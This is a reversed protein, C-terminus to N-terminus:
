SGESSNQQSTRKGHETDSTSEISSILLGELKDALQTLNVQKLAEILQKWSAKPKRQRWETFMKSCCVELNSRNSEAIKDLATVCGEMLEIGLDRWKNSGAACVEDRVHRNLYKDDPCDTVPNLFIM